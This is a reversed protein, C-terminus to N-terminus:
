QKKNLVAVRDRGGYDKVVEELTFGNSSAALDEMQEKQDFGIEFFLSGTDKLYLGSDSLIRRYCDFGDNGGDLALVPEFFKVGPELEDVDKTPIYPPNSVIIDFSVKEKLASFWSSNLFFVKNEGLNIESNNKAVAAADFSVDVAFVSANKFIHKLSIAIAGSGTGLDLIKLNEDKRNHFKKLITEILVETDPRPILVNRNVKFDFEFFSKEGTIYAVPENAVRRKILNRYEDLENKHLPKQFNVYLSVRDCDLVKCILLEASLRPSEINKSEFYNGTWQLIKSITWTEEIRSNIKRRRSLRPM